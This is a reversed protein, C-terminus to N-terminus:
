CLRLSLSQRYPTQQLIQPPASLREIRNILAEQIKVMDSSLLIQGTKTEIDHFVQDLHDYAQNLANLNDYEEWYKEWNGWNSKKAVRMLFEESKNM